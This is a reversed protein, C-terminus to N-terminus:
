PAGAPKPLAVVRTKAWDDGLRRLPAGSNKKMFLVICEILGGVFPIVLMINRTISVQWNNTLKNGAADVARLNM